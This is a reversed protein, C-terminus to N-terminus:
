AKWEGSVGFEFPLHMGGILLTEAFLHTLLAASATKFQTQPILVNMGQGAIVEKASHECDCNHDLVYGTDRCIRSQVHFHLGYVKGLAHLVSDVFWWPHPLDKVARIRQEEHPNDRTGLVALSNWVVASIRGAFEKALGDLAALFKLKFQIAPDSAEVKRRFRISSFPEVFGSGVIRLVEDALSGLGDRMSRLKFGRARVVLDPDLRGDLASWPDPMDVTWTPDVADIRLETPFNM